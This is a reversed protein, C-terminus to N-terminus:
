EQSMKSIYEKLGIIAVTFENKLTLTRIKDHTPGWWLPYLLFVQIKFVLSSLGGLVLIKVLEALCFCPYQSINTLGPFGALLVRNAGGKITKLLKKNKQQFVKRRSAIPHPFKKYSLTPFRGEM